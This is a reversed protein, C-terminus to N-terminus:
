RASCPAQTTMRASSAAPEPKSRESYARTTPSVAVAVVQTQPLEAKIDRIAQIGDGHPMRVDMVVVDPKYQRTREVAEEGSEAEGVVEVREDQTLLDRLGLRFVLHDDALLVRIPQQGPM